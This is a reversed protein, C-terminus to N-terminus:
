QRWGAFLRYTQRETKRIKLKKAATNPFFDLQAINQVNNTSFCLLCRPGGVPWCWLKLFVSLLLSSFSLGLGIMFILQYQQQKQKREDSIEYKTKQIQDFSQNTKFIYKTNWKKHTHPNFNGANKKHFWPFCSWECVWWEVREIARGYDLIYYVSGWPSSVIYLIWLDLPM